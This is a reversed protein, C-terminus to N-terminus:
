RRAKLQNLKASTSMSGQGSEIMEMLDCIEMSIRGKEAMLDAKSAQPVVCHASMSPLIPTLPMAVEHKVDMYPITQGNMSTTRTDLDNRPKHSLPALFQEMQPPEDSPKPPSPPSFDFDLDSFFGDPLDEMVLEGPAAPVVPMRSTDVTTATARNVIPATGERITQVQVSGPAQREVSYAIEQAFIRPTDGQRRILFLQNILRLSRYMKQLNEMAFKYLPDERLSYDHNLWYLLEGNM